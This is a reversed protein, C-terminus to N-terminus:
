LKDTGVRILQCLHGVFLPVNAVHELVESAVVCDFQNEADRAVLEEVSTCLYTLRAAMGPDCEAHHKAASISSETVDIGTM